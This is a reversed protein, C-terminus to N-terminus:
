AALPLRAAEEETTVPAPTQAEAKVSRVLANCSGDRGRRARYLARVRVPDLAAGWGAVQKRGDAGALHDAIIRKLTAGKEKANADAITQGAVEAVMAGLVQKDRLLDFLAPDAQWRRAM